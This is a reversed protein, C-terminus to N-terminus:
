ETQRRYDKELTAVYKNWIENIHRVFKSKNPAAPSKRKIRFVIDLKTRGGELKTLRYDGATNHHEGISDVHWTDPPHLTVISAPGLSKAGKERSTYIVRQKTKELIRRRSKSRTIKNDDERFDTCWDYVFGLPADITRSLRVVDAAVIRNRLDLRVLSV